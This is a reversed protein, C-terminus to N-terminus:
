GAPLVRPVSDETGPEVVLFQGMMGADEHRLIHCHYMYPAAPDTYDRFQVAVRVVSKDPLHVTDKRGAEWPEPPKGNRDLVTFDCGHIHFNHSYVTNEVEWIELAGAPVVEDIRSMDMEEGNISDHGQLKFTRVRAGASPVLPAPGPLEAPPPTGPQADDGVRIEMISLDGQDIRESGSTTTMRVREGPEFAVVIEAREAPGLAFRSLRAPKSMLGQGTAILTFERDDAFGVNYLRANSGNLLRFRVITRTLELYAGLTGNVLVDTGMQGFNPVTDFPMEGDDEITRDQLICPIDDIGYDHPLDLADTDDDDIIIMGAVGNFVQRATEGDPHPHYWLTSARNDVTWSPSWTHGPEIPQHPGGDMRAPLLMGHWHMTTVEDVGNTVHMTVRDRTRLRLTPGLYSGNVGWTQTTTGPLIETSGRQVTLPFTGDDPHLEDPIRVPTRPTWPREPAPPGGGGTCSALAVGAAGAGVLTLFTRRDM